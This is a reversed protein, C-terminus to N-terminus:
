SSFDHFDQSELWAHAEAETAFTGVYTVLGVSDLYWGVTFGDGYHFTNAEAEAEDDHLSDFRLWVDGTPKLDQFNPMYTTNWHTM